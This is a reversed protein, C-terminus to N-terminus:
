GMPEGGPLRTPPDDGVTDMEGWHSKERITITSGQSLGLCQFTTLRFSVQQRAHYRSQRRRAPLLNRSPNRSPNRSLNLRPETKPKAKPKTGPIPGKYFWLIINIIVLIIAAIIVILWGVTYWACSRDRHPLKSQRLSSLGPQHLSHYHYQHYPLLRKRFRQM